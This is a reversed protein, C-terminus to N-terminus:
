KCHKNEIKSMLGEIENKLYLRKSEQNVNILDSLNLFDGFTIQKNGLKFDNQAKKIIELAFNVTNFIESM